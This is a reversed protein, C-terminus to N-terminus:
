NEEARYSRYIAHSFTSALATVGGLAYAEWGGCHLAESFCSISMIGSAVAAGAWAAGKPVVYVIRKSNKREGTKNKYDRRPINVRQELIAGTM